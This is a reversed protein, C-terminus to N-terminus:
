NGVEKVFSATVWGETGDPLKTLYWNGRSEFFPYTKGYEMQGVIKSSSLSDEFIDILSWKNDSITLYGKPTNSLINESVYPEYEDTLGLTGGTLQKDKLDSLKDKIDEIESLLQKDQSSALEEIKQELEDISTIYVKNMASLNKSVPDMQGALFYGFVGLIGLLLVIGAMKLSWNLTDEEGPKKKERSVSILLWFYLTIPMFLALFFFNQPSPTLFIANIFLVSSVILSYYFLFKQYKNM